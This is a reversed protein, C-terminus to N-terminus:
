KSATLYHLRLGLFFLSISDADDRVIKAIHRTIAFSLRRRGVVIGGISFWGAFPHRCMDFYFRMKAGKNKM